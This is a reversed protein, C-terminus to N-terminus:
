EGSWLSRSITYIINKKIPEGYYATEIEGSNKAGLKKIAKQSRLNNIEVHFHVKDIYQFIHNLLLIKVQRNYNGGWFKRTLFSYGILISNDTESFDYYRSSGMVESSGVQLIIFAGKSKIAGEFYIEFMEKKYRDKNPHQEWILPDSAAEFLRDFDSEQLPHLEVFQDKLTPQSLFEM